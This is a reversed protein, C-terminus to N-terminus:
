DIPIPKAFSYLWEQAKIKGAEVTAVEEGHVAGVFDEHFIIWMFLGATTSEGIQSSFRTKTKGYWYVYDSKPSTCELDLPNSKM